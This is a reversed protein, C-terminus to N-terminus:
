QLCFENGEPDQMLIWYGGYEEFARVRVAGLQALREAAADVRRQREALPTAAGGGVNVDLHVRNKTAKPEAVRQFYLRPGVGAPDVVASAATWQEEPVARAALVRAM